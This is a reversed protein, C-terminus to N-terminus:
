FTSVLEALKCKGNGCLLRISPKDWAQAACLRYRSKVRISRNGAVPELVGAAANTSRRRAPISRVLFGATRQEIIPHM